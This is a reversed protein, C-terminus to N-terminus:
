GNEVGGKGLGEEIVYKNGIVWFYTVNKDLRIKEREIDVVSENVIIQNFMNGYNKIYVIKYLIDTNNNYNNIITNNNKLKDNITDSYNFFIFMIVLLCLFILWCVVDDDEM